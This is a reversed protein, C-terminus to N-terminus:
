AIGLVWYACVITVLVAGEPRTLRRGTALLGATALTLAVLWGLGSLAAPDVTMSRISASIGLVGLLNFVCSGVVNGAAIGVDNRRAAVISTALEPVSTGAAVVTVGILWESVGVDAALTTGTEVLLHGGGVVFVLGVLLLTPDLWPPRDDAAGDNAASRDDVPTTPGAAAGAPSTPTVAAPTEAVLRTASARRAVRLLWGTYLVLGLVLLAGELRTVDLDALFFAAVATTAVMVLADRRVLTDTVSFPRVLAITGLIVGLNFVNSGVVNGVSVDARGALAADISVALEPASTGFAVVTLGVILRPVGARSALRSASGVLWRAGLWLAVVAISLTAVDVVVM